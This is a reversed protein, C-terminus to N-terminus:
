EKFGGSVGNPEKIVMLMKLNALKLLHKDKNEIKECRQNYNSQIKIIQKL